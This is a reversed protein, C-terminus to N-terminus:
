KVFDVIKAFVTPNEIALNSLAKRDIEVRKKYLLNIFTSYNLGLERVANNLRITWLNRFTRKKLKRGIYANTGAKMVANKACTFVNSRMMRFGKAKELLNKHRKHTMLGRKVRVM